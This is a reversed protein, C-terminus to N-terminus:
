GILHRFALHDGELAHTKLSISKGYCRIGDDTIEIFGASLVKWNNFKAAFNHHQIYAPFIFGDFGTTGDFIIYKFNM